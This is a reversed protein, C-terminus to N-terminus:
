FVSLQRALYPIEGSIVHRVQRSGDIDLWGDGEVVAVGEAETGPDASSVAGSGELVVEGHRGVRLGAEHCKKFYDRAFEGAFEAFNREEVLV